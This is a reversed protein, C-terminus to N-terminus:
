QWQKPNFLTEKINEVLSYDLSDILKKIEEPNIHKSVYGGKSYANPIKIGKEHITKWVVYTISKLEKEDKYSMHRSVWGQLNNFFDSKTTSITKGRGYEKEYAYGLAKFLVQYGDNTKIIEGTLSEALKGTDKENEYESRIGKVKSDVFDNLKDLFM